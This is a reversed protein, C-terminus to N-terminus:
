LKVSKVLGKKIGTLEGGYGGRGEGGQYVQRVSKLKKKKEDYRKRKKVRPNRVDKKRRPALGRNKEIAYTIARKGDPGVTEEEVVRNGDRAAEAYADARAQKEVKKKKSVAAVMDYYDDEGGDAEERVDKARRRDEDDSDGGLQESLRPKSKGRREAEAQLRAQRDRFRERHPIDMDGGADRGATGRKNAKQAIQSTYFRLSKKRKVKEALEHPTLDVEDGLDSDDGDRTTLKVALTTNVKSSSANKSFEPLNALEEEVQRIREVRRAEEDRRARAAAKQARSLRSKKATVPTEDLHAVGVVGSNNAVVTEEEIVSLDNEDANAVEETVSLDKVKIWLVRSKILSDMVPHTRLEEPPKASIVSQNESFTSTLLVFYASISALYATLAQYKVVAKPVHNELRTTAHQGTRNKFFTEAARSALFLEDHLPHLDLFEHALHEFEPYRIKLLKLREEPGMDDSIQMQPLVETVIDRSGEIGKRPPPEDHEFEDLGYDTESMGKLQKQQIRRAEAEEDLADQETEIADANYYEKGSPGWGEEEEGEVDPRDAELKEGYRTSFRQEYKTGGTDDALEDPGSNEGTNDSQDNVDSEGPLAM